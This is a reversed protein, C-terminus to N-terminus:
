KSAYYKLLIKLVEPRSFESPPLEGKALMARLKTGSIKLHEEKGHPCTKETTMGDCKSCYM